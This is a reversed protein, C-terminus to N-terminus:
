KWFIYTIEWFCLKREFLTFLGKLTIMMDLRNLFFLLIVLIESIGHYTFTKFFHNQNFNTSLLRQLLEVGRRWLEFIIIIKPLIIMLYSKVIDGIQRLYWAYLIERVVIM